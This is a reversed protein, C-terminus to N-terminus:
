IFMDKYLKCPSLDFKDYIAIFDDGRREFNTDDQNKPQLLCIAM